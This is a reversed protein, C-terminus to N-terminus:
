NEAPKDLLRILRVTCGSYRTMGMNAPNWYSHDESDFYIAGNEGYLGYWAYGSSRLYTCYVMDLGHHTNWYDVPEGYEYYTGDDQLVPYTSGDIAYDSCWYYGEGGVGLQYIQTNYVWGSNPKTSM